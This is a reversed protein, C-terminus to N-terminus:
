FFKFTNYICIVIIIAIQVAFLNEVFKSSISKNIKRGVIGGLLGGAVMLVFKNWSFPPPTAFFVTLGISSLQSFLIIFLSSLAAAKTDLSFFFFLVVLNIPGGGIGLFSSLVGLAFGILTCAIPHDIHHTTIRKKCLTYVLTGFTVVALLAAQWAGVTDPNPYMAAISSYSQKGVVGGVAGGVALPITIQLDIRNEGNSLNKLVSYCSMALVTCSSLFSITAVSDTQLLDLVPKIIVGGGIGCIAGSISALLSVVFYIITDIDASRRSEDTSGPPIIHVCTM